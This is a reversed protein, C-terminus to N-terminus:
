NARPHGQLERHIHGNDDPPKRKTSGSQPLITGVEKLSPSKLLDGPTVFDAVIDAFTRPTAASLGRDNGHLKDRTQAKRIAAEALRATFRRASDLLENMSEAPGAAGATSGAVKSGDAEALYQEILSDLDEEPETAVEASKNPSALLEAPTEGAAQLRALLSDPHITPVECSAQGGHRKERRPFRSFWRRPEGTAQSLIELSYPDDPEPRAEDYTRFVFESCIMPEKGEMRFRDLLVTSKDFVMRAIRRLLWNDLDLKRTLCIGALLLIQGYAYRNDQDLYLRAVDLVPTMPEHSQNLRRVAVWNSGGLSVAVPQTDLGAYEGVAVAEAVVGDGIYLGAHSVETGDLKRIMASLLNKIGDATRYLLIDGAALDGISVRGSM